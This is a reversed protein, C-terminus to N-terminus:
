NLKDLKKAASERVVESSDNNKIDELIHKDSLKHRVASERVEDYKANQAINRIIDENQIKLVASNGDASNNTNLAFKELYSENTIHNMACRKYKTELDADLALDCLVSNDQICSIAYLKTDDMYNGPYQENVFELLFDQDITAIQDIANRQDPYSANSDMIIAKLKDPNPKGASFIKDLFGM